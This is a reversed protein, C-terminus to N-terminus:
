LILKRELKRKADIEKVKEMTEEYSYKQFLKHYEELLETYAQTCIALRNKLEINEMM